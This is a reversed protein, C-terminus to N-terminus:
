IKYKNFNLEPIFYLESRARTCAVYLKNRTIPALEHLKEKRFLQETKKNLVVCVSDFNDLGKSAGWNESFCPYKNHSQYFLKVIHDQYFIAEAWGEDEVLELMSADPHHSGIAIGLNNTVFECTTPSCRYSHSLTKEDVLLGSDELRKKYADYDDYLGKNLNGDNSTGYTHQFFDGVLLSDTNGSSIALLINFDGGAFDQVEDIYIYDFYKKIRARVEDTMDFEIIFSAMRSSYIRGRSDIYRRLDTKKKRNAFMTPREFNIGKLGFKNGCLPRLCFSYLFTFYTYVRTGEPVGDYERIVKNRLNRFNNETYTLILNSKSSDISDIIHTTKGSGAVALIVRHDM